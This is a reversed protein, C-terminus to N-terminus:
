SMRKPSCKAFFLKDGRWSFLSMGEPSGWLHSPYLTWAEPAAGLYNLRLLSWSVSISVSKGHFKTQWHTECAGADNPKTVEAGADVLEALTSSLNLRVLIESFTGCFSIKECFTCFKLM